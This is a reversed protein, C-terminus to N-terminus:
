KKNNRLIIKTKIYHYLTRLGKDILVFGLYIVLLRFILYYTLGSGLVVGTLYSCDPNDLQMLFADTVNGLGAM